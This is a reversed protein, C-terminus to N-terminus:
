RAVKINVCSSAPLTAWHNDIMRIERQLSKKSDAQIICFRLQKDDPEVMYGYVKSNSRLLQLSASQNIDGMFRIEPASNNRSLALAATVSQSTEAKFVITNGVTHSGTSPLLGGDSTFEFASLTIPTSSSLGKSREHTDMQSFNHFSQDFLITPIILILLVAAIAFSAIGPNDKVSHRTISEGANLQSDLKHWIKQKRLEDVPAHQSDFEAQILAAFETDDLLPEIHGARHRQNSRNESTMDDRDM